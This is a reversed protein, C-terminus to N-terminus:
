LTLATALNQAAQEKASDVGHAYVNLLTSAQSHGTLSQVTKIDTGSAVLLSAFTHRLSHPTFHKLNNAKTFDGFWKGITSSSIPKGNWQIFLRKKDGEWKSGCGLKQELWWSKYEALVELAFEPIQIARVSSTNKTEAEIMGKGAEYNSTRKIHILENEVDIDDWSLGRIEAQRAGTFLALIICAKKRIDKEKLALKLVQKAESESLHRAEKQPAKPPKMRENSAVNHPILQERTASALIASILSHHHLITRADYPKTHTQIEFLESVPRGLTDAIRKASDATIPLGKKANTLTASSLGSMQALKNRSLSQEEMLVWLKPSATATQRSIATPSALKKYFSKLNHAQIQKLKYHGIEKNIAKLLVKYRNLTQSGQDGTEIWKSAYEEFTTNNDLPANGNKINEELKLGAAYAEDYAKKESLGKQSRHWRYKFKKKGEKTTGTFVRIRHSMSGDKNVRKESINMLLIGKAQLETVLTFELQV